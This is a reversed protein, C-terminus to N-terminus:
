AVVQKIREAVAEVTGEGDVETLLGQSKWFNLVPVTEQEFLELRRNIGEVSDDDRGEIGLRKVLRKVSEARPVALDIVVKLPRGIQQLFNRLWEAENLMRPFADIVIGKDAAQAKIASEMVKIVDESRALMGKDIRDRVEPDNTARLLSGSSLAVFGHNKALIRAQSGKGSGQPGM